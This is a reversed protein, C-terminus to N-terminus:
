WYIENEEKVSEETIVSFGQEELRQLVNENDYNEINEKVYDIAKVIDNMDANTKFVYNFGNVDWFRFKEL